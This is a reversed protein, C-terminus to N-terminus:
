QRVVLTHSIVTAAVAATIGRIGGKAPLGQLTLIRGAELYIGQDIVPTGGGIHLFVDVAGTHELIVLERTADYPLIVTGGVTNDPAHTAVSGTPVAQFCRTQIPGTDEAAYAAKVELTPSVGTGAAAPAPVYVWLAYGLGKLIDGNRLMFAGATNSGIGEPIQDRNLVAYYFGQDPVSLSSVRLFTFNRAVQVWGAAGSTSLTFAQVAFGSDLRERATLWALNLLSLLWDLYSRRGGERRIDADRLAEYELHRIGYPIGLERM